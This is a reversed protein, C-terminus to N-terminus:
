YYSTEHGSLVLRWNGDRIPRGLIHSFHYGRCLRGMAMAVAAQSPAVVPLNVADAVQDRCRAMGACGLILVDAGDVDRVQEGPRPM